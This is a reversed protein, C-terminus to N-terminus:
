QYTCQLHLIKLENEPEHVVHMTQKYTCIIGRGHYSADVTEVENFEFVNFLAGVWIASLTIYEFVYKLIYLFKSPRECSTDRREHVPNRM